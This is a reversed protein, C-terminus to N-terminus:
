RSLNPILWYIAHMIM